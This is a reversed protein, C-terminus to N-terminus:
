AETSCCGETCICCHDGATKAKEELDVPRFAEEKIAICTFIEVQWASVNIIERTWIDSSERKFNIAGLMNAHSQVCTPQPGTASSSQLQKPNSFGHIHVNRSRFWGGAAPIAARVASIRWRELGYFMCVLVSYQPPPVGVDSATASQNVEGWLLQQWISASDHEEDESWAGWGCGKWEERLGEGGGGLELGVANSEEIMHSHIWTGPWTLSHTTVWFLSIGLFPILDTQATKIRKRACVLHIKKFYDCCHERRVSHRSQNASTCDGDPNGANNRRLCVPFVHTQFPGETWARDKM